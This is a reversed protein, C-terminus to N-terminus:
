QEGRARALVAHDAAARMADQLATASFMVGGEDSLQWDGDFTTRFARYPGCRWEEWVAVTKRAWNSGDANPISVADAASVKPEPEASYSSGSPPVGKNQAM